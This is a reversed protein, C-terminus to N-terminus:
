IPSPCGTNSNPEPFGLVGFARISSKDSTFL